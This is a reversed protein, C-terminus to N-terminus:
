VRKSVFRADGAGSGLSRAVARARGLQDLEGRVAELAERALALAAADLRRVEEILAALPGAAGPDGRLAEALRVAEAERRDLAAALAVDDGAELAAHLARATERLARAAAAASM